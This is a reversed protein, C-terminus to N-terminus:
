TSAARLLKSKPLLRSVVTAARRLSDAIIASIRIRTSSLLNVFLTM